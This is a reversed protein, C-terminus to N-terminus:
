MSHHFSYYAPGRVQKSPGTVKCFDCHGRVEVSSDFIAGQICGIEYGVGREQTESLTDLFCFM